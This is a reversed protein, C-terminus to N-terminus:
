SFVYNKQLFSLFTEHFLIHLLSLFGFHIIYVWSGTKGMMIDTVHGPGPGSSILHTKPSLFLFADLVYATMPFM